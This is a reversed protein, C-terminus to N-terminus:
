GVDKVVAEAEVELLAGKEILASVQVMTIPPLHDGFVTKWPRGLQTVAERYDNFDTVYVRLNTVREPSAGAADLVESLNQWIQAWQGAFDDVAVMEGTTPDTSMLGAINVRDGVRMAHAFGKAPKWGTPEIGQITM